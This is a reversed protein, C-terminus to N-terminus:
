ELEMPMNIKHLRENGSKPKIDERGVKAVFDWLMNMHYKSFKDFVRELEEYFNDKVDFKDQKPIFTLLLIV